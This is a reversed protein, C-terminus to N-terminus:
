DNGCLDKTSWPTESGDYIYREIADAALIPNSPHVSLFLDLLGLSGSPWGTWAGKFYYNGLRKRIHGLICCPRGFPEPKAWSQDYMDPPIVGSRLDRAVGLAVISAEEGLEKIARPHIARTGALARNSM